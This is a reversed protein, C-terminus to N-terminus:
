NTRGVDFGGARHGRQEFVRQRRIQHLRQFVIRRQNMAAREGIDRMAAIRHNRRPGRQLEAVIHYGFGTEAGIEAGLFKKSM